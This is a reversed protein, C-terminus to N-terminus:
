TWDLKSREEWYVSAPLALSELLSKVDEPNMELSKARAHSRLQEVSAAGSLVITAFPQALACAMAVVDLDAGWPAILTEMRRRQAPDKVRPSLRGNAFVEKLIVTWGADHALQLAPGVSPELLNWTAQVSSFLAVGDVRVELAKEVVQAQQTGTVSLGIRLGQAKAKALEALVDANDLVGTDLTASHIQYLSLWPGLIARSEALQRRLNEVSHDKVEHTATQTKWDATYVYGWKSGVTVDGPKFGRRELWRALFVEGLGYSRAVDFYRVGSGHAADLVGAALAELAGESTDPGLDKAHGLTMYGPRGLAATGLGLSALRAPM